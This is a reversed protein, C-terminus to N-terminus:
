AANEKRSAKRLALVVSMANYGMGCCDPAGLLLL